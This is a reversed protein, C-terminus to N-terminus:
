ELNKTLFSLSKERMQKHITNVSDWDIPTQLVKNVDSHSSVLREELGFMKLLSEFRAMGREKNGYVIFPKNFIISFVCAHFSDTIVFEADYFARLWKEVPQQIREELPANPDEYRSNVYFPSLVKDKSIGDIISCTKEGKDLIYCFLNGESQPTGATKFLEIYDEKTLLMTPDLIHLAAAGFKEKCLVTASSERVSIADFKKILAACNTTQEEDYEWEDTGFSAAYAIRKIDWDKAFELYANEIKSFFYQPRWIQDSGVIFADFDEKKINSFDKTFIKDIYKDIFCETHTSIAKTENNIAVDAKVVINDGFLHKRIARKVYISYKKYWPGLSIYRSKDILIANHGIKKLVQQLSYAQLIGGFNNHLQLTIIGVKMQKQPKM